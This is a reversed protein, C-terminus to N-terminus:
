PATACLTAPRGRVRARSAVASQRFSAGLSQPVLPERAVNSVLDRCAAHASLDIRWKSPM